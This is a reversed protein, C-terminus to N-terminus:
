CELKKEVYMKALMDYKEQLMDLNEKLKDREKLAQDKEKIAQDREKEVQAVIIREKVLWEIYDPTYQAKKDEDTM